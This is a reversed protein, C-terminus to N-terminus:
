NTQINSFTVTLPISPISLSLPAGTKADYVYAYESQGSIGTVTIKGDEEKQTGEERMVTDFATILSEGLASEPLKDPDVSYSLGMYKLTAKEGDWDACLGELTEPKTFELLLTGATRRTLTGEATMNNYQARFDCVFDVSVPEAVPKKRSCGTLFTLLVVCVAFIRRSM